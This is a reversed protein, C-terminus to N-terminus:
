QMLWMLDKGNSQLSVLSEFGELGVFVLCLFERLLAIVCLLCVAELLLGKMSFCRILTGYVQLVM